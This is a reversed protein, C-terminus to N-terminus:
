KKVDLNISKLLKGDCSDYILLLSDDTLVSLYNQSMSASKVTSPVVINDINCSGPMAVYEKDLIINRKYITYTIVMIGMMMVIGMLYVFFKLFRMEGEKVM